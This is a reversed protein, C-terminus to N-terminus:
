GTIVPINDLKVSSKEIPGHLLLLLLIQLLLLLQVAQAPVVELRRDQGREAVQPILLIEHVHRQGAIAFGEGGVLHDERGATGVESVQELYGVCM